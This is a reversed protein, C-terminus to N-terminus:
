TTGSAGGGKKKKKKKYLNPHHTSSSRCPASSSNSSSSRPRSTTQCRDKFNNAAALCSVSSTSIVLAATVSLSAMALGRPTKLYQHLYQRPSKSSFHMFLADLVMPRCDKLNIEYDKLEQEPIVPCGQKATDSENDSGLRAKSTRKSAILEGVSNRGLQPSNPSRSPSESPPTKLKSQPPNYLPPDKGELAVSSDNGIWPALINVGPAAIDPKLINRTGSAPGRASFYVVTPAPKYKTM